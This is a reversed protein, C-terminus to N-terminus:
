EEDLAALREEAQRLREAAQRAERRGAEVRQKAETVATTAARAANKARELAQQVEEVQVSTSHQHLEASALEADLEDAAATLQEAASRADGVDRRARERERAMSRKPTPAPADTAGLEFGSPARLPKTLLGARLERAVDTDVSAADLTAVVNDRYAAPDPAVGKLMAVAADAARELADHRERAAERLAAADEGRLAARQADAAEATAALLDDVADPDRLSLQNV